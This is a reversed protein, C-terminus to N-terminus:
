NTSTLSKKKGKKQRLNYIKLNVKGKGADVSTSKM